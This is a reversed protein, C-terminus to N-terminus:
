VVYMVDLETSVQGSCKELQWFSESEQVNLEEKKESKIESIALVLRAHVLM